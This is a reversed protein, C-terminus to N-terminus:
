QNQCLKLGHVAGAPSSAKFTMENPLYAQPLSPIFERDLRVPNNVGL